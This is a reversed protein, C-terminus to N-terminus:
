KVNALATLLKISFTLFIDSIGYLYGSQRDSLGDPCLLMMRHCFLQSPTFAKFYALLLIFNVDIGEAKNALFTLRGSLPIDRGDVAQSRYTFTVM